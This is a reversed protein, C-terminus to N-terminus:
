SMLIVLMATAWCVLEASKFVSLFCQNFLITWFNWSRQIGRSDSATKKFKFRIVRCHFKESERWGFVAGRMKPPKFFSSLKTDVLSTSWLDLFVVAAEGVGKVQWCVILTQSTHCHCSPQGHRHFCFDSFPGSDYLSCSGSLLDM